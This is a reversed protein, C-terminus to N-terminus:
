SILEYETENVHFIYIFNKNPCINCKMIFLYRNSKSHLIIRSFIYILINSM